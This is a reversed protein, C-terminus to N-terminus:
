DEDYLSYVKKFSVQDERNFIVGKM